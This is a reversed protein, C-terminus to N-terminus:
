RKLHYCIKKKNEQTTILHSTLKILDFLNFVFFQVHFRTKRERKYNTNM